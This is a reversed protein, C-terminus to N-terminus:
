HDDAICAYIWCPISLGGTLFCILFCVGHNTQRRVHVIQHTPVMGANIFVPQAMSSIYPPNTYQQPGYTNPPMPGYCPQQVYPSTQYQIM